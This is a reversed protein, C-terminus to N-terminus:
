GLDASITVSSGDSNYQIFGPGEKEDNLVAIAGNDLQAVNNDTLILGDELITTLQAPTVNPVIFVGLPKTGKEYIDPDSGNLKDPGNLDIQLKADTYEGNANTEPVVYAFGKAILNKLTLPGELGRIKAAIDTIDITNGQKLNIRPTEGNPKASDLWKDHTFTHTAGGPNPNPNPNPNTPPHTHSKNCAGFTASISLAAMGTAIKHGLNSM